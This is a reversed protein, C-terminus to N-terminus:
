DPIRGLVADEVLTRKSSTCAQEEHAFRGTAAERATDPVDADVLVIFPDSGGLEPVCKKMHAGVVSGVAQSARDPRDPLGRVLPHAIMAFVNHYGSELM